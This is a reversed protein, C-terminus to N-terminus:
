GRRQHSYLHSLFLTKVPYLLPIFPPPHSSSSNSTMSSLTKGRLDKQKFKPMHFMKMGETWCREMMGATERWRKLERQEGIEDKEKKVCEREGM